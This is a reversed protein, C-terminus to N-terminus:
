FSILAIKVKIIGIHGKYCGQVIKVAKGILDRDKRWSSTEGGRQFGGKGRGKPGSRSNNNGRGSMSSSENTSKTPKVTNGSMGNADSFLELDQLHVEREEKSHDEFITAKSGKICIILGTKDKHDAATIRVHSGIVLHKKLDGDIVDAGINVKKVQQKIM